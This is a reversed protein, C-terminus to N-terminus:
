QRQIDVVNNLENLILKKDFGCIHRNVNENMKM